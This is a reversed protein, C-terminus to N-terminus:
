RLVEIREKLKLGNILKFEIETQSQVIVKEIIEDFLGEDFMEILEERRNLRQIIRQTNRKCEQFSEESQLQDKEERLKDLQLDLESKEQIFFAPDLYGDVIM